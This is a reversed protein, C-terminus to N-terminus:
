ALAILPWLVGRLFPPPFLLPLPLLVAALTLARSPRIFGRREALVLAGQLVFYLTPLGYGGRAPVSIALEHLLGSVAFSGLLAASKGIRARLPRHIGAAMMAVFGLNWRRSWFDGLSPARFPARFLEEVAVGRRRWFSAVLEFLGFHFVLGLAVFLIPTAVIRAADRPLALVALRALAFLAAGIAVNRAGHHPVRIPATRTAFVRPQMGFWAAFALWQALTLPESEAAVIVKMGLLLVAVIAIMRFGAPENGITLLVAAMAALCVTWAGGRSRVRHGFALLLAVLLAVGIAAHASPLYAVVFPRNALTAMALAAAGLRRVASLTLAVALLACAAILAVPLAAYSAAAGRDVDLGTM